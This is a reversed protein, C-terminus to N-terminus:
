KIIERLLKIQYYPNWSNDIISFCRKRILNRNHANKKFWMSISGALSDVDNRKFFNGTMGTEITEYEPMQWALDDHTIVPTGFMMCHLATLGVNGPSVCIDANYILEANQKEDYCAGYFWVNDSLGFEAVRTQLSEREVGNGVITLNYNEGRIKLVALAEILMDLRKVKTLRGIFIIIPNNNKFHNAYINSQNISERIEKQQDYDLSNHIPFVKNKDKFGKEIILKRAYNGYTLIYDALKYNWKRTILQKQSEHGYLGHTWLITKKSPFLKLLFLFLWHSLNNTSANIIYYDYKRFAYKLLNTQFCCKGLYVVHSNNPDRLLVPNFTKIKEDIDSFVFTCSFEEDM